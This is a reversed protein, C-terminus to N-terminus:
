EVRVKKWIKTLVWLGILGAVVLYMILFLGVKNAPIMFGTFAFFAGQVLPFGIAIAIALLLTLIVRGFPGFSNPGGRWRSMVPEKLDKPNELSIHPGAGPNPPNHLPDFRPKGPAESASPTPSSSAAAPRQVPTLCQGCWDVDPTLRAGCAGCTQDM